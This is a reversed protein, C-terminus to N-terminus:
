HGEALKMLRNIAGAGVVPSTILINTVGGAAFVEAEGLKACCIGVAGAELQLRAIDLSKHTKSHPRLALGRSRAFDAMAAINHRLGVADLALFPTNLDARAQPAGLFVDNPSLPSMM